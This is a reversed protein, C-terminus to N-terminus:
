EVRETTCSNLNGSQVVIGILNINYPYSACVRVDTGPVWTSVPCPITLKSQDLDSSSANVKNQVDSCQSTSNRDTAAYRAGARVSDTLALYNNFAIGLQAIGLLLLCFIPLVIAFETMTQGRQNRLSFRRKM